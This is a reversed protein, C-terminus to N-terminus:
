WRGLRCVTRKYAQVDPGYGSPTKGDKAAQPSYLARPFGPVVVMPGGAYPHEWWDEDAEPSGGRIILRAERPEVIAAEEDGLEVTGPALKTIVPIGHKGPRTEHKSM